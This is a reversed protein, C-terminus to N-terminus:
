IPRLVYVTVRSFFYNLWEFRTRNPQIFIQKYVHDNSFDNGEEDIIQAYSFVAAIEPNQELFRVQKELKDPAFVDDSNLLAIFEGKAESRCKLGAVCAGQNKDFCFLKIRPDTFSKIISVSQDTSGDDTIVIEFDQYTQNLVSQIAEGVFKEHNYSPIIVTVRPM